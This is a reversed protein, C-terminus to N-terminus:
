GFVNFLWISEYGGGFTKERPYPAAGDNFHQTGDGSEKLANTSTPTVAAARAAPSVTEFVTPMAECNKVDSCLLKLSAPPPVSKHFEARTLADRLNCFVTELNQWESKHFEACALVERLKCFVGEFNQLEACTLAESLKCVISELNQRNAGQRIAKSILILIDEINDIQPEEVAGTKTVPGSMAVSRSSARLARFPATVDLGVGGPTGAEGAVEGGRQDSPTAGNKCEDNVFDANERTGKPGSSEDTTNGTNAPVAPNGSPSSQATSILAAISIRCANVKQIPDTTKVGTKENATPQSPLSVAIPKIVSGDGNKMRDSDTGGARGSDDIAVACSCNVQCKCDKSVGGTIAKVLTSEPHSPSGSAGGKVGEVDAPEANAITALATADLTCSSKSTITVWASAPTGSHLYVLAKAALGLGKSSAIAAASSCVHVTLPAVADPKTASVYGGKGAIDGNGGGPGFSPGSERDHVSRTVPALADQGLEGSAESSGKAPTDPVNLRDAQRAVAVAPSLLISGAPKNASSAGESGQAGASLPLTGAQVASTKSLSSCRGKAASRRPVKKPNTPPLLIHRPSGSPLVSSKRRPKSQAAKKAQCPAM